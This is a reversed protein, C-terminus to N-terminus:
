IYNDMQQTRVYANPQEPQTQDTSNIKESKSSNSHIPDFVDMEAHSVRKQLRSFPPTSSPPVTAACPIKMQPNYGLPDSSPLGGNPGLPTTGKFDGSDSATQMCRKCIRVASVILMPFDRV